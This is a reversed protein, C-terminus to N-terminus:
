PNYDGTLQHLITQKITLGAVFEADPPRVMLDLLTSITPDTENNVADEWETTGRSIYHNIEVEYHDLITDVSQAAQTFSTKYPEPLTLAVTALEEGAGVMYDVRGQRIERHIKKLDKVSYTLNRVKELGVSGDNKYWKITKTVPTTVRDGDSMTYTYEVTVKVDSNDDLYERITKRGRTFKWAQPTLGLNEVSIIWLEDEGYEDFLDM